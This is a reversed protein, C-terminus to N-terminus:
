AAVVSLKQHLRVPLGSPDGRYIWDLTLGYAECLRIAVAMTVPRTGSEYQSWRNPEIDIARCIDVAKLAMAERTQRLRKGLTKATPPM